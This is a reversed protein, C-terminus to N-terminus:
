NFSQRLKTRIKPLLAVCLHCSEPFHVEAEELSLKWNQIDNSRRLHM